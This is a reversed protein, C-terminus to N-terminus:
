CNPMVTGHEPVNRPLLVVKYDRILLVLAFALIQGDWHGFSALFDQAEEDLFSVFSKKSLFSRAELLFIRPKFHFSRRGIRLMRVKLVFSRTRFLFSRVKLVFSRARFLFSRVKLVFSRTGFVFSRAKLM